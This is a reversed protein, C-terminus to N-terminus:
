RLTPLRLLYVSVALALLAMAVGAWPIGVYVITSAMSIWLMAIAIAKARLPIGRGQEFADLYPGLRPHSHLWRHARPSGRLFCASALLLFPTTPLLPLFIGAVGLLLSAGGAAAYVPKL